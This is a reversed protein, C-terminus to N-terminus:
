TAVFALVPVGLLACALRAAELPRAWPKQEM